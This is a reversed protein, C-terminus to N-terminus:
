AVAAMALATHRPHPSPRRRDRGLPPVSREDVALQDGQGGGTPHTVQLDQLSGISKLLAEVDIREEIDM